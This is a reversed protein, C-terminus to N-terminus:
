NILAICHSRMEKRKERIESDSEEVTSLSVRTLYFVVPYLFFFYYLFYRSSFALSKRKSDVLKWSLVGKV